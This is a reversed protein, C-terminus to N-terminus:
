CTALAANDIGRSALLSNYKGKFIDRKGALFGLGIGSAVGTAAAAALAAPFAAREEFYAVIKPPVYHKM